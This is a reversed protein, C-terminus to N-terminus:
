SPDEHIRVSDGLLKELPMMQEITFEPALHGYVKFTTHISSHGLIRSVAELRAGSMILHSAFTHRFTHINIRPKQIGAKKLLRPLVRHLQPHHPFVYDASRKGEILRVLIQKLAPLIPIYRRKQGKGILSIVNSTFNLNRVRLELLERRRMGTLLYGNWIDRFEPESAELLSKIEEISLITLDPDATRIQKFREAPNRGCLESDVLHKFFAKITRIEKNGTSPAIPGRPGQGARRWDIYDQIHTRQIDQIKTAKGMRKAFMGLIVEIRDAHSESHERRQYQLHVQIAQGLTLNSKIQSHTQGFDELWELFLDDAIKPDRTGLSIPSVIGIRRADIFFIGDRPRKRLHISGTRRKQRTM